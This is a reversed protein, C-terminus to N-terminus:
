MALALIKGAPVIVNGLYIELLKVNSASVQKDRFSRKTKGRVDRNHRMMM